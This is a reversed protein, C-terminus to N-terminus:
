FIECDSKNHLVDIELDFKMEQILRTKLLNKYPTQHASYTFIMLFNGSVGKVELIEIELDFKMELALRTKLLNEYTTQHASYAFFM